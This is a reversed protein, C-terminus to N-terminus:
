VKRWSIELSKRHKEKLMHLRATLLKNNITLEAESINCRKKSLLL